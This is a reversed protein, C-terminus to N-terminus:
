NINHYKFSPMANRNRECKLIIYKRCYIIISRISISYVLAPVSMGDISKNQSQQQQTHTHIHINNSNTEENLRISENSRNFEDFYEHTFFIMLSRHCTSRHCNLIIISAGVLGVNYDIHIHTHTVSAIYLAFLCLRQHTCHTFSRLNHTQTM